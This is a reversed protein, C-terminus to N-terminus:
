NRKAALSRWEQWGRKSSRLTVEMTFPYPLLEYPFDLTLHDRIVNFTRKGIFVAKKFKLERLEEKLYKVKKTAERKV